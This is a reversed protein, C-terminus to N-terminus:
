VLRMKIFGFPPSTPLLKQQAQMAHALTNEHWTVAWGPAHHHPGILAALWTHFHWVLTYILLSKKTSATKRKMKFSTYYFQQLLIRNWVRINKSALCYRKNSWSFGNTELSRNTESPRQQTKTELIQGNIFSSHQLRGSNNHATCHTNQAKSFNRKHIHTGKCKSCLYESNITGRWSKVKSPYSTGSRNKKKIVKPQFDYKEINSHSSWCKENSWKCIFSNELRENQPLTQGPGQAPNRALLM